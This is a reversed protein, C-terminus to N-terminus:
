PVPSGRVEVVVVEVGVIPYVDVVCVTTVGFGSGDPGGTIDVTVVGTQPTTPLVSDVLVEVLKKLV